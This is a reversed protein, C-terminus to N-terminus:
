GPLWVPLPRGAGAFSLYLAGCPLAVALMGAARSFRGPATDARRAVQHIALALLPLALYFSIEICLSWAPGVVGYPGFPEFLLFYNSVGTWAIRAPNFAGLFAIAALLSAVLPVLLMTRFVLARAWLGLAVAVLAAPTLWTETVFIAVTLTLLYAPAIRLLRSRGYRRLHPWEADHLTARAFPRYLLFGSLVFFMPVGLWFRSSVSELLGQGSSLQGVHYTLV